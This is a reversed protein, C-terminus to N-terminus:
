NIWPVYISFTAGGGPSSEAKIHGNHNTMIKRCIALGIGTGSYEDKDHLRQFPEFIKEKYEEPFGIGNDAVIIKCYDQDPRGEFQLVEKRTAKQSNIKIVPSVDHRRYKLANGILNLFLQRFQSPYVALVPLEDASVIANEEQIIEALDDLADDILLNIDSSTYKLKTQTSTRSYSILDDILQQMRNASVIVRDLFGQSDDSINKRDNALILKSFIMIKRLPEKLDHSAISSFSALEINSRELENNKSELLAHANKIESIDTCVGLYQVPRGSDDRKFIMNRSLQCSWGNKNKLRFEVAEMEGARNELMLQRQSLVSNLDDQHILPTFLDVDAAAFEEPTYGTAELSRGNIFIIRAKELDYIYILNQTTDLVSKLFAQSDQLAKTRQEVQEELASAFRKQVDIDMCGGVYGLFTGDNSYRPVGKVSVWRYTGDHKKLRYECYFDAHLDFTRSFTKKVMERDDPHVTNTWGTGIEDEM